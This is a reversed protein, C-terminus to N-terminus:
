PFVLQPKIVVSICHLICEQLLVIESSPYAQDHHKQIIDCYERFRKKAQSVDLKSLEDKSKKALKYIKKDVSKLHHFM